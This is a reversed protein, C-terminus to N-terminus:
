LCSVIFGPMEKLSVIQRVAGMENAVRPMGYVVSSAEDQAITYGGSAKIKSLGVAGDKGMGTLIVGISQRGYTEAISEFVCDISPYNFERYQRQTFTVIPAGTAVNRDIRMNTEGPAVYVVGGKLAEGKSALKVPISNTENLRITFSEIFRAPMHQVLVVPVQLNRPLNTVIHEIAAPGGTSAGIAIIDYQLSEFNHQHNNRSAQVRSKLHNIDARAAEKILSTLRYGQLQDSRYDAPKDIFEFAGGKLADFIRTDTKELSSLLIIPVPQKEM